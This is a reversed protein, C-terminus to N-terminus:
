KKGSLLSNYRQPDNILKLAEQYEPLMPNLFRFVSSDEYLDRSLLGEILAVVYPRSRKWQEENFAVGAREGEAILQKELEDTFNFKKIFADEDPYKKM